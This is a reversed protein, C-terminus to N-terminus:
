FPEVHASVQLVPENENPEEISRQFVAVFPVTFFSFHKGKTRKFMVAVLPARLAFM